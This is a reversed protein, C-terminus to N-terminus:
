EPLIVRFPSWRTVAPQTKPPRIQWDTLQVRARHRSASSRDSVTESQDSRPAPSLRGPCQRTRARISFKAFQHVTGIIGRVGLRCTQLRTAHGLNAGSNPLKSKHLLRPSSTLAVDQLSTEIFAESTEVNNLKPRTNLRLEQPYSDLPPFKGNRNHFNSSLRRPFVQGTCSATDLTLLLLHFRPSEAPGRPWYSLPSGTYQWTSKSYAAERCVRPTEGHSKRLRRLAATRAMDALPAAVPFTMVRPIPRSM